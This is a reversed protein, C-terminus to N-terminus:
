LEESEHEHHQLEHRCASGEGPLRKGARERGQVVHQGHTEHDVPQWLVLVGSDSWGAAANGGYMTQRLGDVVFSMPLV